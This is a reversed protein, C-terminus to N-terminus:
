AAERSLVGKGGGSMEVEEQLPPPTRGDGTMPRM